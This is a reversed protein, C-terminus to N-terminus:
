KNKILRISTLFLSIMFYVLIPLLMIWWLLPSVESYTKKLVEYFGILGGLCAINIFAYRIEKLLKM